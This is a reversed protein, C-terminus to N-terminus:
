EITSQVFDLSNNKVKEKGLLLLMPNFRGAGLSQNFRAAYEEYSYPRSATDVKKVQFVVVANNGKVPGVVAGQKAAAIAGQLASENVGINALMPSNFNVDGEAVETGMAKAYGAIDKAKGTYQAVLKDGKKANLAQARLTTNIASCDWPLYDGDYIGKVAVALMYSQKNDQFVPSVQGKRADMIWKVM